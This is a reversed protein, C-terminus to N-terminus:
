KRTQRQYNEFRKERENEKIRQSSAKDRSEFSDYRRHRSHYYITLGIVPVAVYVPTLEAHSCCSAHEGEFLDSERDCERCRYRLLPM